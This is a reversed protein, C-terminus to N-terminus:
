RLDTRPHNELLSGRVPFQGGHDDRVCGVPPPLDHTGQPANRQSRDSWLPPARRGSLFRCYRHSRPGRRSIRPPAQRNRAHRTPLADGEERNPDAHRSRHDPRSRPRPHVELDPFSQRRGQVRSRGYRRFGDSIGLSTPSFPLIAPSSVSKAPHRSCNGVSSITASSPRGTGHAPPIIKSKCPTKRPTRRQFRAGRSHSPGM